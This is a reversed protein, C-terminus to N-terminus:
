GGIRAYFCVLKSRSGFYRKIVMTLLGLAFFFCDFSIVGVLCFAEVERLRDELFVSVEFAELKTSIRDEDFFSTVSDFSVMM